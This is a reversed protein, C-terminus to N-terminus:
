RSSPIEKLMAELKDFVKELEAAMDDRNYLGERLAERGMDIATLGSENKIALPAGFEVLQLIGEPRGYNCAYHLPTRGWYDQKSIDAGAGLIVLEEIVKAVNAMRSAAALHMPTAGFNQTASINAGLRKLTRIVEIHGFLTAWHMPTGDSNPGVDECSAGLNILLEIAEAQGEMAAFGVPTVDRKWGELDRTICVESVNAGMAILERIAGLQGYKVARHIPRFQLSDYGGGDSQEASIDAGARALLRIAELNGYEAAAHMGDGLSTRNLDVRPHELLTKLMDHDNNSIAMCAMGVPSVFQPLRNVLIRIADIQMNAAMLTYVLGSELNAGPLWQREGERQGAAWSISQDMESAKFKAPFGTFLEVEDDTLHGFWARSLVLAMDNDCSTSFPCRESAWRKIYL